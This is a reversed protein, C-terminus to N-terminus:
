RRDRKVHEVGSPIAAIEETTIGRYFRMTTELRAHIAMKKSVVEASVGAARAHTVRSHRLLKPSLTRGRLGKDKDTGHKSDPGIGARKCIRDFAYEVARIKINFVGLQSPLVKHRWAELPEKIYAELDYSARFVRKKKLINFTITDSEFDIDTWLLGPYAMTQVVEGPRRTYEYLIAFILWHQRNGAAADMFDSIEDTTLYDPDVEDMNPLRPLRKKLLKLLEANQPMMMIDFYGLVDYVYRHVTSPAVVGILDDLWSSLGMVDAELDEKELFVDFGRLVSLKSPVSGAAYLNAGEIRKRYREIELM